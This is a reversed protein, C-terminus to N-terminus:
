VVASLIRLCVKSLERANNLFLTQKVNEEAAGDLIGKLKAFAEKDTKEPLLRELDERTLRTIEALEGGLAENTHERAEEARRRLTEEFQRLDM